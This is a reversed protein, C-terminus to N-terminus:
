TVHYVDRLNPLGLASLKGKGLIKGRRGDGFTVTEGDVDVINTMCEFTRTMHRSWGFDIFWSDRCPRSLSRTFAM